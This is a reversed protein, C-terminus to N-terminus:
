HPPHWTSGHYLIWRGICSVHTQGRAQASGKSFSIAVPELVRAQVIGHVSFGPPRCDMPNCLILCLQSVFCCCYCCCHTLLNAPPDAAKFDAWCEPYPRSESGWHHNVGIAEEEQSPRGLEHESEVAVARGKVRSPTLSSKHIALTPSSTRPAPM